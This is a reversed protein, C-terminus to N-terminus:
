EDEEEDVYPYDDPDYDLIIAAYILKEDRRCTYGFSELEAVINDVKEEDLELIDGAPVNGDMAYYQLKRGYKNQIEVPIWSSMEIEPYAPRVDSYVVDNPTFPIDAPIDFEIYDEDELPNPGKYHSSNALYFKYMEESVSAKFEGWTKATLVAKNSEALEKARSELMFMLGFVSDGYVVAKEEM